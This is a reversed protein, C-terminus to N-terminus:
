ASFEREFSVVSSVSLVVDLARVREILRGGEHKNGLTVDLLIHFRDGTKKLTRINAINGGCEFIAHSLSALSGRKHRIACQLHLFHENQKAGWLLPISFPISQKKKTRALCERTHIMLGFGQRMIGSIEDHPLPHCCPAHHIAIGAQLDELPMANTKKESKKELPLTQRVFGLSLLGEGLAVLASKEDKAGLTMLHDKALRISKGNNMWRLLMSGLKIFEKRGSKRVYDRIHARARGTHAIEEWGEHIIIKKGCEIEVRDGNELITSVDRVQGNVKAGICKGGIETHIAYAFDLVSAGKLLTVLEGKPTFCFINERHMEHRINQLFHETNKYDDSLSLLSKLWLSDKNDIQGSKYFRHAAMGYEAEQHMTEDRIQIEIARHYPGIVITHLSRYGNIKPVSIYDKLTGHIARYTQHIIGLAHYCDERSSVIIRFAFIDPLSELPIDKDQLKRWISHISKQRGEVRADLSIKALSNELCTVIHAIHDGEKKRMHNLHRSIANFADKDLIHLALDDMEQSIHNMGMREALLAHVNMTERAIRRRRTEDHVFHLTRMNHLRDALKILLVRVDNTAALLFRRFNEAARADRSSIQLHSIKSVGRVLFAVGDGFHRKILEEGLATDELVDHLLGAIISEKDLRMEALILAVALPHTAYREGSDRKQDRHARLAFACAKRILSLENEGLYGQAEKLLASSPRHLCLDAKARM